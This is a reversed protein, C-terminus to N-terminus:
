SQDMYIDDELNDEGIADDDPEPSPFVEKEKGKAKASKKRGSKKTSGSAASPNEKKKRSARTPPGTLGTLKNIEVANSETTTTSPPLLFDSTTIGASAETLRVTPTSTSSPDKQDKTDTPETAKPILTVEHFAIRQETNAVHILSRKNWDHNEPGWFFTPHTKL